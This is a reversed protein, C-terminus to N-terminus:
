RQSPAKGPASAAAPGSAAILAQVLREVEAWSAEGRAIAFTARIKIRWGERHWMYMGTLVQQGAMEGRWLRGLAGPAGAPAPLDRV